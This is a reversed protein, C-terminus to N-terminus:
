KEGYPFLKETMFNHEQGYPIWMRIGMLRWRVQFPYRHLQNAGAEGSDDVANKGCGIMTVACLAGVAFGIVGKFGKHM